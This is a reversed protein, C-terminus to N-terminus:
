PPRPPCPHTVDERVNARPVSLPERKGRHDVREARSRPLRARRHRHGAVAHRNATHGTTADLGVHVGHRLLDDTGAYRRDAPVAHGVVVHERDAQRATAHDLHQDLRNVRGREGLEVDHGVRDLRAPRDRDRGDDCRTETPAQDDLEVPDGATQAIRSQVRGHDLVRHGHEAVTGGRDLLVASVPFAPTGLHRHEHLREGRRRPHEHEPRDVERRGHRPDALEEAVVHRHAVGAAHEGGARPEGLCVLDHDVPRMAEQGTCEVLDIATRRQAHQGVIRLEVYRQQFQGQPRVGAVDARHSRPPGM